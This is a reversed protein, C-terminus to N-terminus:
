AHDGAPCRRPVQKAGAWSPVQGGAAFAQVAFRCRVGAACVQLACRHTQVLATKRRIVNQRKPSRQKRQTKVGFSM